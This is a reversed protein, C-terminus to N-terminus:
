WTVRGDSHVTFGLERLITVTEEYSIDTRNNLYEVIDNNYTDDANYVSKFMIIKEGYDADLNNIYAIVKEKRSGSISKGNEDKDAKIDDLDKVYERYKVVDSAIAKSVTYREPNEYAWNYAEKTKKNLAYKVYSVGNDKLFAYKNPYKEAFDFEDFSDYDDYDTMDISDERNAINNILINKTRIPVNLGNIYEAKEALTDLGSLGERYEWYDRIPMDVDIYEQIQKEKLPARENDFYDRANKSAWQGFVGAQVRNGFTDEVPFRLNGSDTYSGSVPHDEDFMSLGQITKKAQGYGTPLVYYPAIEGLTELRSKENGYEDKGKVFQEIPLASSIPIRGGTFTSTYPLDELLALFGEEVNDLATDEDDEDDDLGLTKILVDIIDFAPNYGAVSEFAKGFLHQLVALEFLTATVKAATKTNRELGDEIDETSAKAEKITDYFQSDLQNRVELQFKTVLGLMKSNYLQPMQGLSRDAMLRSTWKDTELIAQEESMGKKILEDYKARVIFETTVNDVASMLVYGADAVKQFPTRYFRDAGKRRIITPNNEVFSDTKGFLSGIKSSTTQALAKICSLKNTKAIAQVGALVNTLSSSVNFGIMNAGVQKNVNNLFTIGRRGIIGELGRDILATKGAIVNAEENLFKAFTSLHSNYVQKIREEAEEESLTDLGELGNAQGFTDAIYNRLARLTQIDDIHYIQNKASSLYRELGGLLDFSTRNGKRHMASAFYPQGPKLDATVGNLDTPLDKARIDNPNFPLGLRSFTDEMARFHLFYNDLRPIEPYANRTRSENIAKLTEDYIQRIRKDKALGKINEQVKSDPFDKALEDDGYKILNNNEDVYFGEAYMQAAASEKSGPKINYQNSIKALLGNKRDTFSNLWKIGETENQAVKNVTEDALIQGEKYGLSKEMVRQPTNDVTQFTSLNKAKKLVEDFDFGKEAFKAKIGDIKNKHLDARMVREATADKGTRIKESTKAARTELRNIRKAYTEDTKEKLNQLREIRRKLKVASECSKDKINDLREQAKEIDHEYSARDWERLLKNDAIDSEIDHLKETLRENVTKVLQEKAGEQTPETDGVGKVTPAIDETTTANEGVDETVPAVDEQTPAKYLLDDGFFRGRTVPAEDEWSLSHRGHDRIQKRKALISEPVFGDQRGYDVENAKKGALVDNAVISAEADVDVGEKYWGGEYGGKDVFKQFSAKAAELNYIPKLPTSAEASLRTENVLKMYWDEGAFRAFRPSLGRSECLNLYTAKDNRHENPYINKSVKKRANESNLNLSDLYANWLDADKITDASESTYNLWKYYEAVDTGTRVIHFPIIVDSWDQSGVWRLAEDNTVTAVIGVNPYRERLEKAKEFNASQREDIFYNGDADQNVFVSININMGSPAYVEAFDTDKTYALGKLGRISADTIQQMNEVIFAASYDSFSYWRMGYHENLNKVVRDGLKLIEDRYAVYNKQIKSWSASQAYKRADELQSALNGGNAKITSQRDETAIDALSLLPTGNDVYSIWKDFREQMNKTDKRGNLFEEYLNKIAEASKDSNNYKAIVTDRDQMYRLLMDNFAKRDLSVYCYLCQPETAIDYLKQSVLFSEMQTLPRGIEEQVKDVFENYALTRVCITTNEVSRDYSGNKTLVKGIKDEPLISSYKMMIDVMAATVRQAEALEEDTVYAKHSLTYDSQGKAIESNHSLSYKTDYEINSIRASDIPNGDSDSLSYRIDADATPKLNSTLKAQNSDLVIYEKAGWLEDLYNVVGDYGKSMLEDYHPRLEEIFTHYDADGTMEDLLRILQLSTNNDGRLMARDKEDSLEQDYIEAAEDVDGGLVEVIDMFAGKSIDTMDIPNTMNLYYAETKGNEFESFNQMYESDDAFFFGLYTNDAGTAEGKKSKDFVTFDNNTTHYVKLLNGNRDVAKSDKFYESQEKTLKNGESDASLSYKAEAKAAKRKQISKYMPSGDYDINVGVKELEALLSPTVVNFPVPVDGVVDKFKAATEADSLIRVPKLYRSLYVKRKNDKIKGAVVGSKWDMVGTGDKAYEAKYGSTMESVPIECEVTVINDRNYAEEFQDNLVLNSSHEYPNYAADISKGNGKNLTYYGVGNKIKKINTPDETAQQWVGLQSPNNLKYKGDEGKVKAAMPPYLKGDILQMAKYTTIHEQNELFDITEKDTVSISYKADAEAIDEAKVEGKAKSDTKTGERYLREFERKVKELQRAEKSGKTAIKCLYKIEDFIKQFVNRHNTSLHSIFDSDTFLYNGVIESVVEKDVDEKFTGEDEYVGEYLSKQEEFLSDYIGKTEAFQLAADKLNEYNNSKEFSHTIEHGVLVDLAKASQINIAIGKDTKLGNITKGKYASANFKDGRQKKVLELMLKKNVVEIDTGTDNVIKAVLDFYDHANRTNNALKSDMLKQMFEKAKGEYKDLDVEFRQRSKASENYSELLYNDTQKGDNRVLQSRMIDDLQKRVQAKNTDTALTKLKEEVSKILTEKQEDSLTDNDAIKEIEDRLPKEQELISKYAKYDEGGFIGEITDTSIGGRKLDEVVQEYIENKQKKTLTEGKEERASIRSEVEAEVVKTENDTLDTVFDRGSKNSKIFDGGQAIGSVIVGTAFQELLNEDKVLQSLEEDSMYTLKKAAASGFGALLEEVGEAGAKIGYEAANAWFKSSIKSSVKKAFVDDISTLGKSVGLAKVGKGLGGFILETGADVVGKMTGYALAEKDTAGSSYAESMGSGMSSAGMLGTTLATAGAASGALGGTLIIAGVQGVGQAIGYGFDGLFSDDAIGTEERAKNIATGISDKMAAKKVDEAFDDAGVLDSVGGVGYLLLDTVGEALGGVGQALGLTADAVTGLTGLTVDGFQYGDDLRGAKFLGKGRNGEEETLPRTPSIDASDRKEAYDKSFEAFTQKKKKKAYEEAFEAFTSM